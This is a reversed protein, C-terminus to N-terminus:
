EKIFLFFLFGLVLLLLGVKQKQEINNKYHAATRSIEQLSPTPNDPNVPQHTLGSLFGLENTPIDHSVIPIITKDKAKARGIEQGVAMARTVTNGTILVVVLDSSDIWDFIQNWSDKGLVKSEDWYYVEAYPLLSSALGKVLTLDQTSYSIFVKM